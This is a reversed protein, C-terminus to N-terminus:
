LEGRLGLSPIIPLGGIVQSSAYDYSYAVAEPSRRNYVNQVDLYLALSWHSFRWQKEVRVDLRHFYASREGNVAGFIPQYLDASANYIGGTIPTYPNGTVLRFTGGVEWGRGLRYVGSVTLIHTQDFDFLRWPGGQSDLRESRSLTYSLFGFFRGRPRVRASLELGYIRGVGDNTFFPATGGPVGVVRDWLWKYFAEGGVSIADTIEHDVGASLHLSRIPELEPNGITDISEQFEPPQSFLGVGAKLTTHEGLVYRAALRPDFAWERIEDFWDLRLGLIVTLPDALRWTTEVFVAPRYVNSSRRIDFTPQTGFPQMMTSTGETQTPQPGTYVVEFPQLEIDLGSVIRVARSLRTTLESRATLTWGGLKLKFSDGLGFRLESWGASVDTVQEVRRSWQRRWSAQARHFQTTFDLNGRISPDQDSPNAFIVEFRDSAGYLMLRLRDRESARYTGIAQYDYYVPAAVVSGFTGAPLVNEFFFDIYSRRAAVAVGGREGIPAEVLLSADVLNVDAVGHFADTRTDRVGVDVIGGMHRGFRASFNGPYFDIRELMRSNFFSTLGGFHYLLPVPAGELYAQSDNPASGRILLAGLGFPPRGVGPLLEVARLADGRTGPVRLLEEREITRRTVERPPPDIRAVAGFAERDRALELRYVVSAVEGSAVTEDGDFSRMADAVVHLSYRGPPLAGFDFRGDSGTLVRRTVSADDHGVLVVEAGEVPDEGERDLVRGDLRGRAPPPPERAGTGGDPPTPPPTPPVAARLEFVYRYGIRAAIPAGDRTAPEFVFRRAAAVAAADFAEGASTVVRVDTVAGDASITISLEVAAERGAELADAPYEAEVFQRLRPPTVVPGDPPAADGGVGADREQARAYGSVTVLASAALVALGLAAHGPGSAGGRGSGTM